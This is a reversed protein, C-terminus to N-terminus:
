EKTIQNVIKVTRDILENRWFIAENVHGRMLALQYAEALEKRSALLVENM